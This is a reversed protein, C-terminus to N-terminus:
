ARLFCFCFCTTIMAVSLFPEYVQQLLIHLKEQQVFSKVLHHCTKKALEKFGVMDVQDNRMNLMQIIHQHFNHVQCHAVTLKPNTEQTKTYKYARTQFRHVRFHLTESKLWPALEELVGSPSLASSLLGASPIFVHLSEPM